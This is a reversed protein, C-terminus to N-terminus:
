ASEHSPISLNRQELQYFRTANEGFISSETSEDIEGIAGSIADLSQKYTGALLCVPWDSGFMLRRDGFCRRVHQVYPALDGIQWHRHDAETTLGSLKCSVNPLAGLREMCEAWGDMRGARIEPKALHDIVLRLSPFQRATAVAAPLNQPRVLLDYTLDAGQVAELGNWVEAKTLWDPDPEDEVQHRVGVLKNGGPLQKLYDIATAVQPDALDVWAVVGAVFDLRDALALFDRSEEISSRTQVLVTENIGSERLHPRLDSPSFERQLPPPANKMWPYFASAPNWFHQHSDVRRM